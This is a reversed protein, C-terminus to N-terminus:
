GRLRRLIERKISKFRKQWEEMADKPLISQDFWDDIARETLRQLADPDVADLEYAGEIDPHEKLFAKYRSDTPKIPMPALGETQGPNLAFRRLEIDGEDSFKNCINEYIGWGSPDLDGAYLLVGKKGSGTKKRFRKRAEEIKTLSTYGRSPFLPVQRKGTVESFLRVLADKEIWVEVYCPQEEWIDLAPTILSTKVLGRIYGEVDTHRSLAAPIITHRSRDEFIDYEILGRERATGMHHRFNGYSKHSNVIIKRSVLQYYLQRLTILGYRKVMDQAISKCEMIFHYTVPKIGLGEAAQISAPSALALTEYEKKKLLWSNQEPKMSRRGRLNQLARYVRQDYISISQKNIGRYKPKTSYYSFFVSDWIKLEALTEDLSPFGFKGNLDVSKPPVCSGNVGAVVVPASGGSFFAIEVFGNELQVKKYGKLWCGFVELMRKKIAERGLVPEILRKSNKEILRYLIQAGGKAACLALVRKLRTKKVNFLRVFEEVSFGCNLYSEAFEKFEARDYSFIDVRDSKKVEVTREFARSNYEFAIQPNLAIYKLIYDEVRNGKDLDDTIPITVTTTGTDVKGKRSEINLVGKPDRSLRDKLSIVHLHAASEFRVENKDTLALMLAIKLGHGVQGRVFSRKIYKDSLRLSFDAITEFEGPAISGPNTIMGAGDHYKIHVFGEVAKKEAADCANDLFEKVVVHSGTFGPPVFKALNEITTYQWHSSYTLKKTM